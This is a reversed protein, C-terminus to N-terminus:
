GLLNLDRRRPTLQDIIQVVTPDIQDRTEFRTVEGRQSQRSRSFAILWDTSAVGPGSKRIQEQKIFM